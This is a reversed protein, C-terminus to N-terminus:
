KGTASPGCKPTGVNSSSARSKGRGEHRVVAVIRDGADIIDEVEFRYDDWEELWKGFFKAIGDFGHYVQEELWTDANSFNWEIEPSVLAFVTDSDGAAFADSVRRVIEVDQQSM